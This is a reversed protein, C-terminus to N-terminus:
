RPPARGAPPDPDPRARRRSPADETVPDDAEVPDDADVPDNAGRPPLQARLRGTLALRTMRWEARLSWWPYIWTAPRNQEFCVHGLWALGYAAPPALALLWWGSTLLAAAALGVVSLAAAYHFARCRRCTHERLYYPWFADFSPLDRPLSM